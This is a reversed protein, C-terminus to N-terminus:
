AATIGAKAQEVLEVVKPDNWHDARIRIAEVTTPEPEWQGELGHCSCHWGNVEYLAGDDGRFLVWAAGSYDEYEYAAVIIQADTPFPVGDPVYFHERVDEVSHFYEGLYREM